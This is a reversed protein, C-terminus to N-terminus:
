KKKAITLAETTIFYKSLTNSVEWQPQKGEALYVMFQDVVKQFHSEHGSKLEAPINILYMNNYTEEVYIGPFAVQLKQITATLNKKFDDGSINSSNKIYLKPQYNEREGQLIYLDAKTGKVVFRYKDGTGELAKANWVVNIKAQIGNIQFQISGNAYVNLTDNIIDKQLFDPFSVANTSTQFDRLSIKTPWRSADNVLIDTKYNIARDPFCKWMIQDILHTTVDTIGDGQQEVDYYWQPRILPKGSVMKLFHHVSESEVAPNDSTGKILEGFLEKEQMLQKQLINVVDYRETMMDYLILNNKGANAYAQELLAFSEKNTIIPKDSLVNLGASVSSNINNIKKKNNGALVVVNGRKDSLMKNLYDDKSYVIEKWSTPNVERTNYSKILDLYSTLEDSESAYVYVDKSIRTDMNIQILAAHFHGPELIMLKVEGDKGTFKNRSSEHNCAMMLVVPLAFLWKKM